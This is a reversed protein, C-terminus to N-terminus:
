AGGSFGLLNGQALSAADTGCRPLASRQVSPEAGRGTAGGLRKPQFTVPVRGMAPLCVVPLRTRVSTGSLMAADDARTTKYRMTISCRGIRKARAREDRTRRVSAHGSPRLRIKLRKTDSVEM